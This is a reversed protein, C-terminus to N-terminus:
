IQRQKKNKNNKRNERERQIEKDRGEKVIQEIYKELTIVTQEEM